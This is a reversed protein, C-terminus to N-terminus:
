IEKVSTLDEVVAISQHITHKGGISSIGTFGGILYCTKTVQTVENTVKVPVKFNNLKIDNLEVKKKDFYNYFFRIIWGDVFETSGSGLPGRTFNMIKNWFEVSPTDEYTVIFEDLLPIVNQLYNCFVKTTDTLEKNDKLIQLLALTKLKVLKWDDLSGLMHIKSIGCMPVIRGYEFYNKFTDM